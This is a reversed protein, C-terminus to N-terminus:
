GGHSVTVTIEDMGMYLNRDWADVKIQYTGNELPNTDWSTKYLDEEPWSKTNEIRSWNGSGNQYYFRVIYINNESDIISAVIDVQNDIYAGPWPWILQAQPVDPINDIIFPESVKEWTNNKSDTFNAKITHMGEECDSTNIIITYTNNNQPLSDNGLFIWGGGKLSMYFMLGEQTIKGEVITINARVEMEDRFISLNEQNRKIEGLLLITDVKSYEPTERLRPFLIMGAIAACVVVAVISIILIKNPGAPEPPLSFAAVLKKNAEVKKKPVKPPESFEEPIKEDDEEYIHVQDEDLQVVGETEHLTFFGFDEDDPDVILATVKSSFQQLNKQTNIDTQSMFIGFGPHSHYWGVIRGKVEKKLIKDTVKAITQPPLAARTNHSEHEGSIADEIVITHDKINGILIGIIEKDTVKAEEMVKSFVGKPISVYFM